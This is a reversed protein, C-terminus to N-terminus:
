FGQIKEKVERFQLVTQHLFAWRSSISQLAYFEKPTGANRKRQDKTFCVNVLVLFLM